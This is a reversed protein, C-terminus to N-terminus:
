GGTLRRERELDAARVEDVRRQLGDTIVKFAELLESEYLPLRELIYPHIRTPEGQVWGMVGWDNKDLEVILISNAHGVPHGATADRLDRLEGWSKFESKFGKKKVPAVFMNHLERIADQQIIFAQLVGWVLLYRDDLDKPPAARTFRDIASTSVFLSSICSSYTRVDANEKDSFGVFLEYPQYKGTLVNSVELFRKM